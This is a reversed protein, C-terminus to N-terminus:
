RISGAASPGPPQEAELLFSYWFCFVINRPLLARGTSIASLRAAVTLRNDACHPIKLKDCSLLGGCGTAKGMTCSVPKDWRRDSSQPISFSDRGMSSILDRGDLRYVTAIGGSSYATYINGMDFFLEHVFEAHLPHISSM